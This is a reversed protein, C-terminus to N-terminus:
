KEFFIIGLCGPGCHSSVTCGANTHLVQEFGWQSTLINEIAKVTAEDVGSDTIFVRKKDIEGASTLRENVYQKLVAETKGRYKKCVDMKGDAVAICLRLKLVGAAFAAVSSCRGGKALYDMTDLVFSINVKNVKQSLVDLIQQATKGDKALESAELALMGSGTSLSRSDLVYVGQLESAALRANQFCSSLESSLSIHVVENGEDLLPKWLNLYDDASCASTKPLEGKAKVLEFLGNADIDVGDRFESDCTRVYLPSIYINERGAIEKSLDCTSDATIVVKNSM